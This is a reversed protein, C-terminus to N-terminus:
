EVTCDIHVTTNEILKFQTQRKPKILCILHEKNIYTKKILNFPTGELSKREQLIDSWISNHQRDIKPKIWMVWYLIWSIVNNKNIHVNNSNIKAIWTPSIPYETIPYLWHGHWVLGFRVSCTSNVMIITLIPRDQVEFHFPDLTMDEREINRTNLTIFVTDAHPMCKLAHSSIWLNQMM